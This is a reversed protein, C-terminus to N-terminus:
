KAEATDTGSMEGYHMEISRLTTATGGEQPQLVVLMLRHYLSEDFMLGAQTDEVDAMEGGLAKVLAPVTNSHGAVVAVSAPALARLMQVQTEPDRASVVQVEIGAQKALPALTQQTRQYESAYLHTVGAPGLLQALDDARGEGKPSLDPDGGAGREAEAHRVLFVLVTEQEAASADDPSVLAGMCLALLAVLVGRMRARTAGREEHRRSKTRM